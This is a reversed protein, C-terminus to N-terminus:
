KSQELLSHQSIYHSKHNHHIHHLLSGLSFLAIENSKEYM